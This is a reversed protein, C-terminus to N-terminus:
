HRNVSGAAEGEGGLAECQGKLIQGVLQDSTSGGQQNLDCKEAERQLLREEHVQSSELNARRHIM